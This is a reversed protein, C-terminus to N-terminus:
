VVSKRDAVVMIVVILRMTQSLSEVNDLAPQLNMVLRVVGIVKRDDSFFIPELRQYYGVGDGGSEHIDGSQFVRKIASSLIVPDVLQHDGYSQLLMIQENYVELNMVEVIGRVQTVLNNLFYKKDKIQLLIPMMRARVVQLVAEVRSDVSLDPLLSVVVVGIVQSDLEKEEVVPIFHMSSFEDILFVDGQRGSEFISDVVSLLKSELRIGVQEPDAHAIVHRDEGLVLVREVGPREALEVVLNQIQDHQNKIEGLFEGVSLSVINSISVSNDRVEELMGSAQKDLVFYLGVFFLHFLM